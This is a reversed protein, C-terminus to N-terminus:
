PTTKRAQLENGLNKYDYDDFMEAPVSQGAMHAVALLHLLEIPNVVAM